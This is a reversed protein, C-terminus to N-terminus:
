NTSANSRQLQAVVEIEATQPFMDLPTVSEIKFRSHLQALDRALTAPNCSVYILTAPALDVITKRLRASLGVAPPDVLLATKDPNLTPAISGLRGRATRHVAGVLEDEVNGAIYTEKETADEKAAAIAFRDWDIGVIRQFKGILAKAFFGAGCFADVLLEQNSPMLQVILDRLANAVGDNTQSFVRPGSRARLTYHGDPVDHSRLDALERNVEEMAISCHEVDILRNSERQFYGIVGNAAHVTVRNRYAYPLPSPIIPRMPVDDLKGIRKLADRVQRTKIELQHAYDIHQYACGGCRGFYPCPPDVRYRSRQRLDVVEAEAFQKKERTIKASVLEREITFPIFVAKGNERAVGKGGFAVDTIKLDVTRLASSYGDGEPPRM